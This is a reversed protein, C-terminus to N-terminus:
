KIFVFWNKFPRIQPLRNDGNNCRIQGTLTDWLCLWGVCIMWVSRNNLPSRQDQSPQSRRGETNLECMTGPTPSQGVSCDETWNSQGGANPPFDTTAHSCGRSCGVPHSHKTLLYERSEPSFGRVLGRMGSLSSCIWLLCGRGGGRRGAVMRAEWSASPRQWPGRRTCM